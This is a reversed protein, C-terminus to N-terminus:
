KAAPTLEIDVTVQQANLEVTKTWEAYGNLTVPAYINAGNITLSYAYRGTSM